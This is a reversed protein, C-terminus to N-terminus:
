LSNMLMANFLRTTATSRLSHNAFHGPIGASAMLQNVVKSLTNHGVAVKQYWVDEKPHKLPKLYLASAPRDIPCKSNYMKFIKILCREPNDKNEYHIVKKPERHKHTLGGQNTKSVDETYILYSSGTPPEHLTIQCPDHHLQRHEEGRRLAFCLGIGYFLIDLLVQPNHDGLLKLEWLKDEMEETIVDASQKTYNGTSKLIKM